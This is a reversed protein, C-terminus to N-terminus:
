NGRRSAKNPRRSNAESRTDRVTSPVTARYWDTPNYTTSSIAAGDTGAKASSQIMWGDHLMLQEQAKATGAISGFLFLYLFWGQSIRKV